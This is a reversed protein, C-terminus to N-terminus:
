FYGKQAPVMTYIGDSNENDLARKAALLEPVSNYDVRRDGISVSKAGRIANTTATSQIANLDTDSTAMFGWPSIFFAWTSLFLRM